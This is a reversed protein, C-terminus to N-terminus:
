KTWGDYDIGGHNKVICARQTEGTYDMQFNKGAMREQCFARYPDDPIRGDEAPRYVTGGVKTFVLKPRARGAGFQQRVLMVDQIEHWPTVRYCVGFVTHRVGDDPLLHQKAFQVAVVIDLIALCCLAFANLASSHWYRCSVLVNCVAFFFCLAAWVTRRPRRATLDDKRM